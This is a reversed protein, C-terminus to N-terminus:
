AIFSESSVDSDVYCRVCQCDFVYIPLRMICVIVYEFNRTGFNIRESHKVCCATLSGM